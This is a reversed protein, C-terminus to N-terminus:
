MVPSLRAATSFLGKRSFSFFFPSSTSNMTSGMSSYATCCSFSYSPLFSTLQVLSPSSSSSVSSSFFFFSSTFACYSASHRRIFSMRPSLTSFTTTLSRMTSEGHTSTVPSYPQLALMSRMMFACASRSLEMLAYMLLLFVSSILGSLAMMPSSRLRASASLLSLVTFSRTRSSNSVARSALPKESSSGLVKAPRMWRMTFSPRDMSSSRSSKDSSLSRGGRSSSLTSSPERM